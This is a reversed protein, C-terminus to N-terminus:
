TTFKIPQLTVGSAKVKDQMDALTIQKESDQIMANYTALNKLMAKNQEVTEMRTPVNYVHKFQALPSAMMQAEVRVSQSQPCNGNPCGSPQPPPMNFMRGLEMAMNNVAIGIADFVTAM